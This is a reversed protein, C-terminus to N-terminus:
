SNKLWRSMAINDFVYDNLQSLMNPPFVIYPTGSASSNKVQNRCHQPLEIMPDDATSYIRWCHGCCPNIRRDTVLHDHRVVGFDGCTNGNRTSCVYYVDMGFTPGALLSRMEVSYNHQHPQRYKADVLFSYSGRRDSPWRPRNTIPPRKVIFDPIWRQPTSVGRLLKRAEDTLMGQGYPEVTYGFSEIAERTLPESTKVAWQLRDNTM